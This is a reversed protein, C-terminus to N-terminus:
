DEMTSEVSVNPDHEADIIDMIESAMRTDFATMEEFNNGSSSPPPTSSQTQAQQYPQAQPKPQQYPQGQPQAQQYPQSSTIKDSQFQKFTELAMKNNQALQFASIGLTTLHGGVALLLRQTPTLALEQELLVDILPERIENKQEESVEFIAEVQKNTNDIYDKITMEGDLEMELDIEKKLSLENIKREKFSAWQKFPAPVFKCYLGLMADATKEASKRKQAPSLDQLNGEALKSSGGGDSMDSDDNSFDEEPNMNFEAQPIDDEEYTQFDDSGGDADFDEVVKADEYLTEDVNDVIGKTYDREIVPQEFPNFGNESMTEQNKLQDNNKPKIQEEFDDNDDEINETYNENNDTPVKDNYLSSNSYDDLPVEGTLYAHLVELEEFNSAMGNQNVYDEIQSESIVEDKILNAIKKCVEKETLTPRGKKTFFNFKM